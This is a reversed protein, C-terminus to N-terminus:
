RYYALSFIAKSEALCDRHSSCRAPTLWNHQHRGADHGGIAEGRCLKELPVTVVCGHQVEVRDLREVFIGYNLVSGTRPEHHRNFLPDRNTAEATSHRINEHILETLGQRADDSECKGVGKRM